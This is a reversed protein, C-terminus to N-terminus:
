SHQRFTQNEACIMIQLEANSETALLGSTCCGVCAELLTAGRTEMLQDELCKINEESVNEIMVGFAELVSEAMKQRSFGSVIMEACRTAIEERNSDDVKIYTM